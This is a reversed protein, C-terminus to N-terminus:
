FRYGFNLTFLGLVRTDSGFVVQARVDPRVFVHSGSALRVGGGFTLMADTRREDRVPAFFDEIRGFTGVTRFADRVLQPTRGPLLTGRGERGDRVFTLDGFVTDVRESYVGGSLAFYPVVGRSSPAFNLRLGADTSWASADRDLYIGSAELTLRPTLDYALSGGIAFGTDSGSHYFGFPSRPGISAASGVSLGGVASVSFRNADGEEQAWASGSGLAALVIAVIARRMSSVGMSSGTADSALLRRAQCFVRFHLRKAGISTAM